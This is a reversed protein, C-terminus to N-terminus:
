RRGPTGAGPSFQEATVVRLAVEQQRAPASTTLVLRAVEELRVDDRYRMAPRYLEYFSPKAIVPTVLQVMPLRGVSYCDLVWPQPKFELLAIWSHEVAGFHGDIVMASRPDVCLAFVARAVEHCRPWGPEEPFEDVFKTAQALLVVVDAPVVVQHTYGKM